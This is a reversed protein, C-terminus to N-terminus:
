GLDWALPGCHGPLLSTKQHDCLLLPCTSACLVTLVWAQFQCMAKRDMYGHGVRTVRGLGFGPPPSPYQEIALSYAYPSFLASLAIWWVM